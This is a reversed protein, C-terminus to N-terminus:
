RMIILMCGFKPSKQMKGNLLFKIRGRLFDIRYKGYIHDHFWARDTWAPLLMVICEAGREPHLRMENSAKMVWSEIDSFPPNCFVREKDWSQKLGDQEKTYFKQCKATSEQCCPDLTFRYIKNLEEFFEKPTEWDDSTIPIYDSGDLTLQEKNMM